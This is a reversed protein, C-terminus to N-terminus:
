DVHSSLSSACAMETCRRCRNTFHALRRSLAHETLLCSSLEREMARHRRHSPPVGSKKVSIPLRFLRRRIETILGQVQLSTAGPVHRLVYLLNALRFSQIVEPIKKLPLTNSLIVSAAGTGFRSSGHSIPQERSVHM